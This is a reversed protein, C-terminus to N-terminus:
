QQNGKNEQVSVRYRHLTNLQDITPNDIEGRKFKSLWSRNLTTEREIQALSVTGDELFKRLDDRINLPDM